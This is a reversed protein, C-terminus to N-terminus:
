HLLKLKKFIVKKPILLNEERKFYYVTDFVSDEINTNRRYLFLSDKKFQYTGKKICTEQISIESLEFTHDDFLMIEASVKAEIESKFTYLENKNFSKDHYKIGFFLSISFIFIIILPVFNFRLQDISLSYLDQFSIVLFAIFLLITLGAIKLLEAIGFCYDDFHIFNLFPLIAFVLLLVHRKKFAM